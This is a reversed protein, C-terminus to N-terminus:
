RGSAIIALLWKACENINYVRVMLLYQHLHISVPEGRNKNM